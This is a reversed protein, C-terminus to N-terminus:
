LQTLIDPGDGTVAVTHEFHASLGGDRTVTTWGDEMTFVAAGKENIMPEIALVMGAKLRVGKGAAGYNPIQPNEHLNRGIGHGVFERVVSYGRAEVYQQVAHSIDSLRNGPRAYQIAVLLSEQTVALLRAASDTIVGVPVTLAADGYFGDHLIGFDISLIDGDVLLRKSPIGHIVESNVSACIAHKFGSYGKFAAKAGRRLSEREAIEDLKLTSVGPKAEAKLVQLIEAVMRSAARIKEIEQPSKLIIV